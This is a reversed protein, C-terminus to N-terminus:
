GAIRAEDWALWESLVILTWLARAHDAERRQHEDLLQVAAEVHIGVSALRKHSVRSLAWDHLPGRLWLSLPISLGRKRRYIISKPLYREAYRKLFTKTNFGRVRETVPITAAFEMVRQDLFPARVELASRMGARDSKTLLGEALTVELDFQQVADLLEGPPLDPKQPLEESLGLRKMLAPTVNAKWLLHRALGDQHMGDVFRKLLFSITVKKDSVPWKHVAYRFAAQLSQPLSTYREGWQAALHTPYGGFLEDGGEGALVLKVDLAARQALLATPIWAPDALPEGVRQILDTLTAPLDMPDVWVSVPKLGLKQAVLEAYQGEDYSSEEFRLSYAPFTVNPRIDRTMAAILSSDLGGSLFIGFPVDIDSQSRVAERFVKDFGEITPTAKPVRGIEWQWYRRRRIGSTSITVAEGPRVKQVELYPSTPAAMCGLTMYDHIADKSRTFKAGSESVLSAVETAFQVVGDQLTFFIPREGARDRTLLLEQKNPDWIAIAFVGVLREPIVAIDTEQKVKRGRTELWRRLEKHNDIEGNCVAIVGTKEDRIPQSGSELGRIALRSAGLAAQTGISVGSADPGRHALADVMKKVRATARELDFPRGQFAIGCVGCM